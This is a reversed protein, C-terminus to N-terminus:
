PMLALETEQKAMQAFARAARRGIDIGPSWNRVIDAPDRLEIIPYDARFDM